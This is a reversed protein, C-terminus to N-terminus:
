RYHGENDIVNDWRGKKFVNLRFRIQKKGMKLHSM